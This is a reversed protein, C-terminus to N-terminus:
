AGPTPLVSILDGEYGRFVLESLLPVNSEWFQAAQVRSALRLAVIADFAQVPISDTNEIMRQTILDFYIQKGSAAELAKDRVPLPVGLWQAKIDDPAGGEPVQTLTFNAVVRGIEEEILYETLHKFHPEGEINTM